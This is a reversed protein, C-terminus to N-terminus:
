SRRASAGNSGYDNENRSAYLGVNMLVVANGYTEAFNRVPNPNKQLARYDKWTCGMLLAGVICLSFLIICFVNVIWPDAVSLDTNQVPLNVGLAKYLLGQLLFAVM